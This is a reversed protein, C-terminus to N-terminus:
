AKAAVTEIAIASSFLSASSTSGRILVCENEVADNPERERAGSHRAIV